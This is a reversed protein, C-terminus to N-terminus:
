ISIGLIERARTVADRDVWLTGTVGPRGEDSPDPVEMRVDIGAEALRDAMTALDLLRGTSVGVFGDENPRGDPWALDDSKPEGDDVGVDDVLSADGTFEVLIAQADALKTDHVIVEVGDEPAPDGLRAGVGEAELADVLDPADERALIALVVRVPQEERGFLDVAEVDDLDDAPRRIVVITGREIERGDGPDSAPGPVLMTSDDPCISVGARYETLCVPCHAVRDTTGM